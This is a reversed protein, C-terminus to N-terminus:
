VKFGSVSGKLEVALDALLGIGGALAADDAHRQGHRAVQRLVADADAGNGRSQKGRRQHVDQGLGHLLRQGGADGERLAQALGALKGIQGAVDDAVVVQVAFDNAEIARQAHRRASVPAAGMLM